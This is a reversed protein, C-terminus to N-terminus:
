SGGRGGARAAGLDPFEIVEADQRAPSEMLRGGELAVIRDSRLTAQGDSVGMLVGIGMERSLERILATLEDTERIGLGDTLDDALLLAPEGAIAQALEVLAREWDSLENWQQAATGIAGVRELALSAKEYADRKGARRGRWGRRREVLLPMAAYDLMRMAMGPGDRGAWAIRRGLLRCLERDALGTMEQGDFIVQGADPAEMGAAIRLLTSKGQGRSALVCLVEGRALRLSVRDLVRVLAAGRRYSRSVEAMRLLESM